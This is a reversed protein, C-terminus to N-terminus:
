PLQVVLCVPWSPCGPCNAPNVRQVRGFEVHWCSRLCPVRFQHGRRRVRSAASQQLVRPVSRHTFRAQQRNEGHHSPPTKRNAPLLAPQALILPGDVRPRATASPAATSATVENETVPESPECHGGNHGVPLHLREVPRSFRLEPNEATPHHPVGRLELYQVATGGSRQLPEGDVLRLRRTTVSRRSSSYSPPLGRAPYRSMSHEPLQGFPCRDERRPVNPRHRLNM